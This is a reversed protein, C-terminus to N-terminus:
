LIVCDAARDPVPGNITDRDFSCLWTVVNRGGQRVELKANSFQVSRLRARHGRPCASGYYGDFNRELDDTEIRVGLRGRDVNYRDYWKVGDVRLNIERRFSRPNYGSRVCEINVEAEADLEVRVDRSRNLGRIRTEARLEDGTDIFRPEQQYGDDDAYAGGYGGGAIVVSATLLGGLCVTVASIGRYKRNKRLNM